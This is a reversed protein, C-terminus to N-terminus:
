NLENTEMLMVITSAGWDLVASLGADLDGAGLAPRPM